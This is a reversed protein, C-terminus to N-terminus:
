YGMPYSVFWWGALVAIVDALANQVSDSTGNPFIRPLYFKLPNEIFEWIVALTFSIAFNIHFAAYAAGISFHVATFVDFFRYNIEGPRSRALSRFKLNTFFSLLLEKFRKSFNM